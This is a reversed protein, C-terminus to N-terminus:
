LFHLNLPFVTLDELESEVFASIKRVVNDVREANACNREFVSEVILGPILEFEKFYYEM